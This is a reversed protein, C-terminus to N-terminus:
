WWMGVVKQGLLCLFLVCGWVWKSVQFTETGLLEEVARGLFGVVVGLALRGVRRSAKSMAKGVVSAPDVVVGEIADQLLQPGYPLDHSL